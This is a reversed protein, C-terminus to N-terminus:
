LFQALNKESTIEYQHTGEYRKVGQCLSISKKSAIKNNIHLSYALTTPASHLIGNKQHLHNFNVQKFLISHTCFLWKCFFKPHIRVWVLVAGTNSPILSNCNFFIKQQKVTLNQGLKIMEFKASVSMVLSVREQLVEFSNELLM